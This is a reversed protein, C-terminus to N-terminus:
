EEPSDPTEPRAASKASLMFATLFLVVSLRGLAYVAPAEGFYTRGTMALVINTIDYPILVAAAFGGITLMRRLSQAEQFGALAACLYFLAVLLVASGGMSFINEVLSSSRAYYIYVAVLQVMGWAVGVLYLLPAKKFPDRGTCLWVAMAANLAGLALSLAALLIHLVPGRVTEFQHVGTKAAFDALMYAGEVVLVGGSFGAFIGPGRAAKRDRAGFDGASRRFCVAGVAAMAAPILLSLWALAAGPGTYFGTEFDFFLNMQVLRLVLGLAAGAVILWLGTGINLKSREM